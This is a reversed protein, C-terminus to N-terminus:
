SEQVLKCIIQLKVDVPRHPYIVRLTASCVTDSAVKHQCLPDWSVSCMSALLLEEQTVFLQIPFLRCAYLAKAKELVDSTLVM